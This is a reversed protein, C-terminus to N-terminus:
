KKKKGATTPATTDAAPGETLFTLERSQASVTKMFAEFHGKDIVREGTVEDQRLMQLKLMERVAGLARANEFRQMRTDVVHLQYHARIDKWPWVPVIVGENRSPEVIQQQYHLAAMKFLATEQMRMCNAKVYDDVKSIKSAMACGVCMVGSVPFARKQADMLQSSTVSASDESDSVVSLANDNSGGGFAVGAMMDEASDNRDRKKKKSSAGGESESQSEDDDEDYDRPKRKTRRKSRREEDEDDSAVSSAGDFANRTQLELEVMSIPAYM